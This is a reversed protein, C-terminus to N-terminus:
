GPRWRGAYEAGGERAQLEPEGRGAPSRSALTPCRWRRGLRRGSRGANDGPRRQALAPLRQLSRRARRRRRPRKRRPRFARPTRGARSARPATGATPRVTAPITTSRGSPLREHLLSSSHVTNRTLRKKRSRHRCGRERMKRRLAQQRSSAMSMMSVSRARARSSASPM